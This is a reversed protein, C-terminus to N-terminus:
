RFFLLFLAYALNNDNNTFVACLCLRDLIKAMPSLLLSQRLLKIRSILRQVNIMTV